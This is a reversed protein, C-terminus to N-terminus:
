MALSLILVTVATLAAVTIIIWALLVRDSPIPKQPEDTPLSFSV